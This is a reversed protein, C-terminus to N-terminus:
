ALMTPMCLDSPFRPCKHWDFLTTYWPAEVLYVRVWSPGRGIGCRLEVVEIGLTSGLVSTAVNDPVALYM